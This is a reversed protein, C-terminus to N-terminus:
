PCDDGVNTYVSNACLSKGRTFSVHSSSEAVLRGWALVVRGVPLAFGHRHEDGAIDILEIRSNAFRHDADQIAEAHRHHKRGLLRAAPLRREVRAIPFLRPRHDPLEALHKGGISPDDARRTGARGHAPNEKRVDIGALFHERDAAADELEALEQDIHEPHRIRPGGKRMFDCHVDPAMAPPLQTDEIMRQLQQLRHAAQGVAFQRIHFLAAAKAAGEAHFHGACRKGHPLAFFLVDDATPGFDHNGAVNTAQHVDAAHQFAVGGRPVDADHM